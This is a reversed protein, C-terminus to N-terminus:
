GARLTGGFSAEIRDVIRGVVRDAEEDTLTRETSRIELAFALSKAGERIPAGEFVDFLVVESLLEGGAESITALVDGAPVERPLEFALDRRVPPFRAPEAVVFDKRAGSMLGDVSLEAVSIRGELDFAGAVSPHIEGMVGIPRGDVSVAAARGPHM